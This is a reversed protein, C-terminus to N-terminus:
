RSKKISLLITSLVIPIIVWLISNVLGPLIFAHFDPNKRGFIARMTGYPVTFPSVSSLGKMYYPLSSIPWFIGSIDLVFLYIAISIFIVHEIRPFLIALLIGCSAGSITQLGAMTIGLFWSGHFPIGHAYVSTLLLILGNPLVLISRAIVQSIVMESATVGTSLTREAAKHSMEAQLGLCSLAFCCCYLTTLIFGPAAYEVMNLGDQVSPIYGEIIEGLEVPVPLSSNTIQTVLSSAGLLANQLSIELSTIIFKNTMDGYMLITGRHITEDDIIKIENLVNMRIHIAESFGSRMVLAARLRLKRIDDVAYDLREYPILNINPNLQSKILDPYYPIRISDNASHFEDVHLHISDYEPIDDVIWAVPVDKPPKGVCVYMVMMSTTPFVLFLLLYIPSRFAQVLFRWVLTSIVSLFSKVKHNDRHTVYREKLIRSMDIGNDSSETYKFCSVISTQTARRKARKYDICIKLFADELTVCNFRELIRDPEDEELIEGSRMLGIMSAKRCEEIYHTTIIIVMKDEVCLQALLSWIKSRLQPDVGVTPEDLIALRPRHIISCALSLRRQQGGSLNAIVRDKDPIELFDILSTVRSKLYMSRMFYLNGFYMLIENVTLDLLLSVDQPMYGIGEGPIGSGRTGPIFGFVCISGSDPKKLGNIIRLLTTKGCGSPGLLGYISCEPININLHNLALFNKNGRSGYSVCLNSGQVALRNRDYCPILSKRRMGVTPRVSTPLTKVDPPEYHYSNMNM